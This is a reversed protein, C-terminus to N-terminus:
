IVGVVQGGAPIGNADLPTGTETVEQFQINAVVSWAAFANDIETEFCSSYTPLSTFHTNTQGSGTPDSSWHNVGAPMYSYTVIGGALGPSDVDQGGTFPSGAGWKVGNQTNFAPTLVDDTLGYDPHDPALLPGDDIYITGSYPNEQQAQLGHPTKLENSAESSTLLNSALYCSESASIFALAASRLAEDSILGPNEDDLQKLQLFRAELDSYERCTPVLEQGLMSSTLQEQIKQDVLSIDVKRSAQVVDRDLLTAKVLLTGLLIIVGLTFIWQRVKRSMM